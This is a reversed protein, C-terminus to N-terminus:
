AITLVNGLLQGAWWSWYWYVWKCQEELFRFFNSNPYFFTLNRNKVHLVLGSYLITICNKEKRLMSCIDWKTVSWYHRLINGRRVLLPQVEWLVQRVELIWKRTVEQNWSDLYNLRWTRTLRSTSTSNWKWRESILRFHPLASLWEAGCNGSVDVAHFFATNCTIVDWHEPVSKAFCCLRSPLALHDAGYGSPFVCRSVLCNFSTPYLVPNM